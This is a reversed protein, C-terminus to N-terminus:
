TAIGVSLVPPKGFPQQMPKGQVICVGQSSYKGVLALDSSSSQSHRHGSPPTTKVHILLLRIGELFKCRSLGKTFIDANNKNSAVWEIRLTGEEIRERVIHFRVDIHKSKKTASSQAIAIASKDDMYTTPVDIWVGFDECIERIYDLIKVTYSCGEAEAEETLLLAAADVAGVDTHETRRRIESLLLWFDLIMLTVLNTSM